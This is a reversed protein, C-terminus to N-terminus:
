MFKQSIQPRAQPRHRHLAPSPTRSRAGLADAPTTAEAALEVSPRTVTMPGHLGLRTAARAFAGRHGPVYDGAAHILEHLLRATRM